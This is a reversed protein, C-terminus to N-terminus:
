GMPNNGDSTHNACGAHGKRAVSPVLPKNKHAHIRNESSTVWELNSATNNSKNLDKHNVVPKSAQVPLFHKAVITHIYHNSKGKTNCLTVYCYGSANCVPKLVKKRKISYVEGTDYVLYNPYGVITIGGERYSDHTHSVDEYEFVYGGVSKNINLCVKSIASRSVEMASAADTVSEFVKVIEGDSTKQIVKRQHHTLKKHSNANEKQTVWELNDVVNNLKNCDKHNVVLGSSL